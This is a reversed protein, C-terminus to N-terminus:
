KIQISYSFYLVGGSKDKLADVVRMMLAATILLKLAFSYILLSLWQLVLYLTLNKFWVTISPIHLMFISLLLEDKICFGM